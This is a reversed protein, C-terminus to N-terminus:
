AATESPHENLLEALPAPLLEVLLETLPETLPETLLETGLGSVHTADARYVKKVAFRGSLSAWTAAM